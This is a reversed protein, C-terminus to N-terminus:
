GPLPAAAVRSWPRDGRVDSVWLARWRNAAAPGERKLEVAGGRTYDLGDLVLRGACSSPLASVVTRISVVSASRCLGGLQELSPARRGWWLAVPGSAEPACSFRGCTWGEAEIQRQREARIFEYADTISM